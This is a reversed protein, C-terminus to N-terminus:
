KASDQALQSITADKNRSSKSSGTWYQVVGGFALTLAGILQNVPATDPIARFFSLLVVTCFSLVVIASIVVDGEPLSPKM